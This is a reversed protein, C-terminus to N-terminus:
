HAAVAKPRFETTDGRSKALARFANCKAVADAANDANSLWSFHSRFAPRFQVVYACKSRPTSHAGEAPRVSALWPAPGTGNRFAIQEPTLEAPQMADAANTQTATNTKM